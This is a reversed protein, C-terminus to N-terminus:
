IKVACINIDDYYWSRVNFPDIIDLVITKAHDESTIGQVNEDLYFTPLHKTESWEQPSNTVSVTVAYMPLIRLDVQFFPWGGGYPPPEGEPPTISQLGSIQLFKQNRRRPM